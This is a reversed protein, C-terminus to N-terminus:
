TGPILSLLFNSKYLFLGFTSQDVYDAIAPFPLVTLVFPVLMFILFAMLLGNILGFGAGLLGDFSRLVPLHISSDLGHIVFALAVRVIVFVILFSLMNVFFNVITVDFYEGVTYLGKDAFAETTINRAILDGIPYPLDANAMIADIDDVQSVPIRALEVSALKESGETYYVMANTLGENSRISNSVSGMLVFSLLWAIFFAAVSLVAVLFGRYVGSLVCLAFILLVALNLWNFM